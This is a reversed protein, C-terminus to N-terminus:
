NDSHRTWKRIISSVTSDKSISNTRVYSASEAPLIAAKLVMLLLVTAFFSDINQSTNQGFYNGSQFSM